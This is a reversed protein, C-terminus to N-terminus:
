GTTFGDNGSISQNTFFAFRKNVSWLKKFYIRWHEIMQGFNIWKIWAESVRIFMRYIKHSKNKGEYRKLHRRHIWVQHQDYLVLQKGSPRYYRGTKMLLQRRQTTIIRAYILINISFFFRFVPLHIYIKYESYENVSFLM